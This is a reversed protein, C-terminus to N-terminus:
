RVPLIEITAAKCGGASPTCARPRLSKDLCLRVDQLTGNTCTARISSTTREPNATAFQEQVKTPSETRRKALSEFAPPIKVGDRAKRLAAFYDAASLGSCTGHTKWEHQILGASPIYPLTAKVIKTPVRQAAGCNEPGRAGNAQPWLGHVIFGTHRDAGCEAPDKPGASACFDPAWSLTLVFYDFSASTNSRRSRQAPLALAAVVFVASAVLSRIPVSM